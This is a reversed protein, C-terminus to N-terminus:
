KAGTQRRIHGTFNYQNTFSHTLEHSTTAADGTPPPVAPLRIPRGLESCDLCECGDLVSVEASYQEIGNEDQQISVMNLVDQDLIGRRSGNSHRALPTLRITRLKLPSKAVCCKCNRAIRTTKFIRRRDRFKFPQELSVSSQSECYGACKYVNVSQPHFGAIDLQRYDSTLMCNAVQKDDGTYSLCHSLLLM